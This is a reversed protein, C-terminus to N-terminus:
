LSIIRVAVIAAFCFLLPVIASLSVRRWALARHHVSASSLERAILLGILALTVIIGIAAGFGLTAVTTVTTTTVTTTM